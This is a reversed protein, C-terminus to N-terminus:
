SSTFVFRILFFNCSNSRRKLKSEINLSHLDKFDKDSNDFNFVSLTFDMFFKNLPHELNASIESIELQFVFSTLYIVLKKLPQEDNVDIGSM